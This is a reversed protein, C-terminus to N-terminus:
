TDGCLYSEEPFLGLPLSQNPLDTVARSPTIHFIPLHGALAYQVRLAGAPLTPDPQFRLAAFTAFMGPEIAGALVTNLDNLLDHLPTPVLLRTRIASKVMGMVVGARVGHSSVDALCVDIVGDHEVVEMLDGGMEGSALSRAFVDIPGFRRQIDPVLARHIQSALDLEAQMRASQVGQTRIVSVFLIYGLAVMAISGLGAVTVRPAGIAFISLTQTAFLAVVGLQVIRRPRLRDM